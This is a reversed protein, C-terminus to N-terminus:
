TRKNNRLHGLTNQKNVLDKSKADDLVGSVRQGGPNYVVFGGKVEVRQFQGNGAVTPWKGSDKATPKDEDKGESAPADEGGADEPEAEDILTELEAVTEEGTLELGLENARDILEQKKAM